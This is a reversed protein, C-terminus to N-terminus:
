GTGKEINSVQREFPTGKSTAAVPSSDGSTVETFSYERKV